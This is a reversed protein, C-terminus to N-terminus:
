LFIIPSQDSTIVRDRKIQHHSPSILHNQHSSSLDDIMARTSVQFVIPSRPREWSVGCVRRVSESYNGRGHGIRECIVHIVIARTRVGTSQERPRTAHSKGKKSESGHINSESPVIEMMGDGDDDDIDKKSRTERRTKNNPERWDRCGM